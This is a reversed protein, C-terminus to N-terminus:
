PTAKIFDDLEAALRKVTEKHGTDGALNKLEYPDAALDYLEDCDKLDRYRIYKWRDTRIASYGMNNM